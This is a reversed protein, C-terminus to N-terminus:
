KRFLIFILGALAFPLGYAAMMSIEQWGTQLYFYVIMAGGGILMMLGGLVRYFFSCFCGAIALFLWPLFNVLAEAKGNIVDRIAGEGIIFIIFFLSSLMSILWAFGHFTNVLGKQLTSM